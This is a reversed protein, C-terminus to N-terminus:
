DQCGKTGDACFGFSAYWEARSPCDKGRRKQEDCMVNYPDPTDDREEPEYRPLTQREGGACAVNALAPTVLFAFPLITSPLYGALKTAKMDSASCQKRPEDVLAPKEPAVELTQGPEDLKVTPIPAPVSASAQQMTPQEKAQFPEHPLAASSSAPVLVGCTITFTLAGTTPAVHPLLQSIRVAIRASQARAKNAFFLVIAVISGQLATRLLDLARLLRSKVTSWRLNQEDAIDAISKGDVYYAYILTRDEAKLAALAKNLARGAGVTDDNTVMSCLADMEADSHGQSLLRRHKSKRNSLAAFKALKCMWAVFRKKESIPPRESIPKCLALVFADHVVELPRIHSPCGVRWVMGVMSEVLEDFEANSLGFNSPVLPAEPALEDGSLIPEDSPPM